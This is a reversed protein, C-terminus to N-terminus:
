GEPFSLVEVRVKEIGNKVIGLSKAAAYSLDIIRGKKFPGRDNIKVVINKGNKLNVVRVKTGIPLKKHAATYNYMNYREGSSTKNGHFGKGYWSANGIQYYDKGPDLPILLRQGVHIERPNRINNARAIVRWKGPSGLFKIAVESLSDGRKIVYDLMKTEGSDGKALSEGNETEVKVPLSWSKETDIRPKAGQQKLQEFHANQFQDIAIFSGV